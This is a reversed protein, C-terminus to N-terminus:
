PSLLLSRASPPTCSFTRIRTTRLTELAEEAKLFYAARLNDNPEVLEIGKKQKVCWRIQDM